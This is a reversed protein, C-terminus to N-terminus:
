LEASVITDQVQLNSIIMLFNRYNPFGTKKLSPPFVGRATLVATANKRQTIAM